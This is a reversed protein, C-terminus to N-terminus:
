GKVTALSELKKLPVILDLQLNIVEDIDKYALRHEEAVDRLREKGLVVGQRELDALVEEKTFARMAERRGLRRGAGHSCSQFSLESGLGRVIYSYSGMAGPIIGLQDRHASIAGKRHIWLKEGRYEELSAYNHHANIQNRYKPSVKWHKELQDAVIAQVRELMVKRNERAFDLALNMWRLDGKGEPSEVSFYALDKDRLPQGQAKARRAYYNCIKYGFNRSGSHVMITLENTEVNRQLEIFHNGSGLTGVQYYGRDIEALLEKPDDATPRYKDLAECKQPRKHHSFGTPVARLIDQVIDELLSRDQREWMVGTEVYAVGCGIDVGVANPIIAGRCAVVGGIPMGYGTHTDPLLAVHSVACPLNALNVAQQRCTDELQDENELWVYIDLAQDKAKPLVFM